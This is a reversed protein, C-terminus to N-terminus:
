AILTDRASLAILPQKKCFATSRLVVWEVWKFLCKFAADIMAEGNISREPSSTGESCRGELSEAGSLNPGPRRRSECGDVDGAGVSADVCTREAVWAPIREVSGRLFATEM